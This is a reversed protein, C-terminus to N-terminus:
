GVEARARELYDFALDRVERAFDLAQLNDEISQTPDYDTNARLTAIFSDIEVGEKEQRDKRELDFVDFPSAVVLPLSVTTIGDPLVEILTAKPTRETNERILAGRSLAGQNVFKKGDVEVIGQDKHWHGFCNHVLLGGAVYEGTGTRFNHVPGEYRWRSVERVRAYYLGDAFFGAVKTKSRDPPVVGLRGSLLHGDDGYFSIVHAPFNQEEDPPRVTFYPRLGISLALFFVQFALTQSATAGMVDVRSSKAHGDGLLWGVLFEMRDVASRQFLWSSLSKRDSYRGGHEAFFEAIERGYACVQVGLGNSSHVHVDLGFHERVLTRIDDHLDTEDVHISWAVGAVPEKQRNTIIHGEAAYYGLLRALGPNSPAATPIPPVPVAVYDGVKIKGAEVWEAKVSPASSCTTCPYSTRPKDPHGRRTSRSPLVCRLGQAVWYPHEATAGPVLPPVGEVDLRVMDEAVHRAPHVVEVATPGVRGLVALSESVREIPIPRYLWDLVPTSPPFCWLDPGDPTVLDPYRFVPENFFDEVSAPPNNGALQHVVAILYDDGARKQISRLEELKRFPSYPVGVVRVRLGGDEFVVERLQEFVKAAYLVGLPQRSISDLNNYALDHNGEVCYTPCPYARHIEATKTVLAHPNRTAAKVHFYDGGDLVATAQHTTAFQGVQELNSWIESPYDGKWSAPSKDSVHTDTRYVFAVRPM